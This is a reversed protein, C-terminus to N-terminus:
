RLSTLLADHAVVSVVRLDCPLHRRGCRTLRDRAVLAILTAALLVLTFALLESVITITRM